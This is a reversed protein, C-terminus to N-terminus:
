VNVYYLQELRGGQIKKGTNGSSKWSKADSISVTVTDGNSLGDEKDCGFDFSDLEKGKYELEAKGDPGVGSFTVELDAFADFTEVEALGSVGYSGDTYKIKCKIYKSFDEDVDWVYAIEDGNSLRDSRDLKVRIYEQM